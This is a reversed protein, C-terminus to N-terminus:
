EFEWDDRMACCKLHVISADSCICFTSSFIACYLMVLCVSASWMPGLSPWPLAAKHTLMGGQM